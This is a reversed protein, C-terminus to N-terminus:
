AGYELSRIRNLKQKLVFSIIEQIGRKHFDVCINKNNLKNDFIQLLSVTDTEDYFVQIGYTLDENMDHEWKEEVLGDVFFELLNYPLMIIGINRTDVLVINKDYGLDLPKFRLNFQNKTNREM